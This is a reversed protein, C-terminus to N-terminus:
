EGIKLATAKQDLSSILTAIMAEVYPLHKQTAKLDALHLGKLQATTIIPFFTDLGKLRSFQNIHILGDSLFIVPTGMAVAPLATHIRSTIVYAAKAIRELQKQALKRREEENNTQTSVIQSAHEVSLSQKSLFRHLQKQATIFKWKKLPYKLAQVLDHFVNKVSLENHLKFEPLMREHVSLVLIGSRPTKPPVFRERKLSLTMCGTFTTKIGKETLVKQTHHDRCGIPEHAKFYAIGLPSLMKATAIPNLHFSIFIPHIKDSPPWNDPTEMFWGNMILVVDAGSYHNLTDRNLYVPPKSLLGETAISQIPDGLNNSDPYSLVATKM